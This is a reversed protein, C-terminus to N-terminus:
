PFISFQRSTSRYVHRCMEQWTRGEWFPFRWCRAPTQTRLSTGRAVTVAWTFLSFKAAWPRPPRGFGPLPLQRASRGVRRALDELHRLALPLAMALRWFTALALGTLLRGLRQPDHIGSAELNWGHSKWSVILREIAWRQAYEAVRKLAVPLSTLLLWPADYGDAWVAVVQSRRWGAAKFVAVPASEQDTAPLQGGFGSSWQTGPRPVLSRLSRTTGDALRVQTPGQVRLLWHWGLATLLDLMRPVGYAGDAVLLVHDRLEAPLLEQVEQLLSTVLTWYEGDPLPANQQWTRVGLPLVVGGIPIGIILLHVHEAQSSEDLILTVGVFRAHSTPATNVNAQHSLIASRLLDPLLPRVLTPLLTPDLRPDGLIRQLRRDISEAKAPTIALNELSTSLQGTTAQDSALLGTILLALRKCFPRPYGTGRLHTAVWALVEEYLPHDTAPIIEAEARPQDVPTPHPM